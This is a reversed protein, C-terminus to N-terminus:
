LAGAFIEWFEPFSKKVVQQDSLVMPMGAMALVAAAMAMRHDEAPDFHVQETPFVPQGGSLAIGDRHVTFPVQILNLLETTKEIRRSEKHALHPAGYLRSPGTAFACLMALVPFLDPASSLNCEIGRLSMGQRANPPRAVFLSQENRELQAGMQKLIDVFIMDPQHSTRPFGCLRVEGGVVALAALAFASSLDSEVQVERAMIKQWPPIRLATEGLMEIEMGAQRLMALTMQGYGDSVVAGDWELELAFPLDWANLLLGSLFQSSQDRRVRLRQAPAQWGEGSIQLGSEKLESSVGLASLLQLIPQHPRALLRPRGTLRHRGPRRSLCFALFRLVTGAHGCDVQYGAGPEKLKAGLRAVASQMLKVDECESEGLIKLDAQYTQMVLARNMMSKSAPVKGHYFFPRQPKLAFQAM